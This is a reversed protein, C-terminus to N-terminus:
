QRTQQHSQFLPLHNTNNIVREPFIECVCVCMSVCWGAATYDSFHWIHTLGGTFITVPPNKQKTKKKRIKNSLLLLLFIPCKVVNGLRKCILM